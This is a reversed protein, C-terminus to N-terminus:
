KSFSYRMFSGGRVEFSEQVKMLRRCIEVGLSNYFDVIVSDGTSDIRITDVDNILYGDIDVIKNTERVNNNGYIPHVIVIDNFKAFDHFTYKNGVKLNLTKM